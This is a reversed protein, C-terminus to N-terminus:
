PLSLRHSISSARVCVHICVVSAPTLCVCEWNLPSSRWAPLVIRTTPHLLMMFPHLSYSTSFTFSILFLLFSIQVPSSFLFLCLLSVCVEWSIRYPNLFANRIYTSSPDYLGDNPYLRALTACLDAFKVGLVNDRLIKFVVSHTFHVLSSNSVACWDTPFFLLRSPFFRWSVPFFPLPAPPHLVVCTLRTFVSHHNSASHALIQTAIWPAYPSNHARAYVMTSYLTELLPFDDDDETKEDVSTTVVQGEM